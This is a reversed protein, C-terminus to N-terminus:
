VNRDDESDAHWFNDFKTSIQHLELLFLDNEPVGQLLWTVLLANFLVGLYL